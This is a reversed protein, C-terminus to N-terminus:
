DAGEDDEDEDRQESEQTSGIRDLGNNGKGAAAFAWHQSCSPPESTQLAAREGASLKKSAIREELAPERSGEALLTGWYGRLAGAVEAQPEAGQASEGTGLKPAGLAGPQNEDFGEPDLDTPSFLCNAEDGGGIDTELGAVQAARAPEHFDAPAVRNVGYGLVDADQDPDRGGLCFCAVLPAGPPNTIRRQFQKLDVEVGHAGAAVSARVSLFGDAHGGDQAHGGHL